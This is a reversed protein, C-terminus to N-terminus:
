EATRGRDLTQGEALRAARRALRRAWASEPNPKPGPRRRASLTREGFDVRAWTEFRLAQGVTVPSVVLENAIEDRTFGSWFYLARAVTVSAENLRAMGHKSGFAHRERSVCDHRNQTQTGALLHAPNCCPPNDCSHRCCPGPWRGHTLFFALRHARSRRFKGYGDKDKGGKWPWCENASGIEVQHWFLEASVDGM